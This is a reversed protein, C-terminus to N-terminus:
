LLMIIFIFFTLPNFSFREATKRTESLIWRVFSQEWKVLCRDDNKNHEVNERIQEWFQWLDFIQHLLVPPPSLWVINFSIMHIQSNHKLSRIQYHFSFQDNKNMSFTNYQIDKLFWKYKVTLRLKVTTVMVANTQFCIYSSSINMM